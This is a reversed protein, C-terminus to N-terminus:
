CNQKSEIDPPHDNASISNPPIESCTISQKLVKCSRTEHNCMYHMIDIIYNKIIIKFLNYINYYIM